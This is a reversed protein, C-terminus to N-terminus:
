RREEEGKVLLAKVLGAAICGLVLWVISCNTLRVYLFALAMVAFPYAGGKDTANRFLGIVVDFLMAVVGMQMGRLFLVVYQNGVIAQYFLTVAIMVLFPPLIVGLVAAFSGAFGAIHYGIVTSSTVAMPGPSSQVIAIYDAMEDETLWQRKNVFDDRMVALIAYGSNATCSITFTAVFLALMKELKSAGGQNNEGM